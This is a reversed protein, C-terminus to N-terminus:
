RRNRLVDARLIMSQKRQGCLSMRILRRVMFGAPIGFRSAENQVEEKEAKTVRVTIIETLKEM